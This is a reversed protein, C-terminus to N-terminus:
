SAGETERIGDLPGPPLEASVAEPIIGPVARAKLNVHLVAVLLLILVPFRALQELLMVLM